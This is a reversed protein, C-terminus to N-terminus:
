LTKRVEFTSKPHYMQLKLNGIQKVRTTSPDVQEAAGEADKLPASDAALSQDKPAEPAPGSSGSPASAEGGKTVAEDDRDQQRDRNKEM